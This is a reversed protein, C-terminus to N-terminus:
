SSRYNREIFENATIIQFSIPYLNTRNGTPTFRMYPARCAQWHKINYMKVPYTSTAIFQINVNAVGM